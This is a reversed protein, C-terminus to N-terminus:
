RSDAAPTPSRDPRLTFRRYENECVPGPCLWLEGETLDMVVSAVTEIETGDPRAARHRCVSDPRGFHDRLADQLDKVGLPGGQATLHSRVRRDRFLSDPYRALGTDRVRGQAGKFHNSHVLLGDEAFVHFVDPPAAELDVAEGDRHALLHNSSFARPARLVEGVATPLSASMLIARRIVPIPVGPHKGDFDSNLFNGCLGIGASNMGSRALMGAEVFTLFSPGRDPTVRLVIAAERCAPRWDWNQGIIVRGGTREPLLAAGTCGDPAGGPTAGYLLETRANLAVIEELARGAGEAIGRMEELLEPYRDGIVPEFARARALLATRAADGGDGATWAAMYVRLSTAIRDAALRGYQRGRERADGEVDVLPFPFPAGGSV